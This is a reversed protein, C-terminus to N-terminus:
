RRRRRRSRAAPARSASTRSSPRRRADSSSRSAPRRLAPQLGRRTRRRGAARRLEAAAQQPRPHGGPLARASGDSMAFMERVKHLGACSRTSRARAHQLAGLSARATAPVGFREMVPQACHHGTRIAIGERDLITGIDHPHVGDLVFSLVRRRRARPASSACGPSRACRARARVRAARARARRHARPRHGDPLRAGRRPRDRRRHEAHRGRVQVPARQLDDERLTVSRIMDGGGQWPPMAELLAARATSCASAPRATCRTAPSPTSTAASRRCTSRCTRRAGARRRGAGARRARAGARRDAAGPQGHRARELRAGVAVLRTRPSLLRELEDLRLEGRTTSRARRAARRGDRECLSRGPCSTRTTSWRRHDPDRRGAAVRTGDSADARGPQDGRHHRAHLRDRAREPANLFRQVTDRAGEYAQTARERSRRARRPPRQRLRADYVRSEADIM